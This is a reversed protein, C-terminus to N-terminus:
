QTRGDSHPEPAVPEPEPAHMGVLRKGRRWLKPVYALPLVALLLGCAVVIARVQEVLSMWALYCAFLHLPLSWPPQVNWFWWCWVCLSTVSAAASHFPRRAQWMMMSELVHPPLLKTPLTPAVHCAFVFMAVLFSVLPNFLEPTCTRGSLLLDPYSHLGLYMLVLGLGTRFLVRVVKHIVTFSKNFRCVRTNAAFALVLPVLTLAWCAGAWPHGVAVCVVLVASSLARSKEEIISATVDAKFMLAVFGDLASMAPALTPTDKFFIVAGGGACLPWSLWSDWHWAGYVALWLMSSCAKQVAVRKGINQELANLVVLFGFDTSPPFTLVGETHVLASLFEAQVESVREPTFNTMWSTVDGLGADVVTQTLTDQLTSENLM